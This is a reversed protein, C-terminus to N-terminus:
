QVHDPCTLAASVSCCVRHCCVCSFMVAGSMGSVSVRSCYVCPCHACLYCVWLLLCFCCLVLCLAARALAAGAQAPLLLVFCSCCLVLFVAFALGSCCVVASAYTLSTPQARSRCGARMGSGGLVRLMVLSPKGPCFTHSASVPVGRGPMPPTLPCDACLRAPVGCPSFM